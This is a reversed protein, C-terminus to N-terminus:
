DRTRLNDYSKEANEQNNTKRNPLDLHTLVNLGTDTPIEGLSFFDLEPPHPRTYIAPPSPNKKSPTWSGKTMHDQQHPTHQCHPNPQIRTNLREHTLLPLIKRPSGSQQEEQPPPQSRFFQPPADPGHHKYIKKSFQPFSTASKSFTHRNRSRQPLENEAFHLDM